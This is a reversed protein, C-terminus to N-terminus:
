RYRRGSARQILATGVAIRSTTRAGWRALAGVPGSRLVQPPAFPDWAYVPLRPLRLADYGGGV